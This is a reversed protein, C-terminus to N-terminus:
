IFAAEDFVLFFRFMLTPINDERYITPIAIQLLPDLLSVHKVM